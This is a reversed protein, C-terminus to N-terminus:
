SRWFRSTQDILQGESISYYRQNTSPSTLPGAEARWPGLKIYDFHHLPFGGPFLEEPLTERGSYWGVRLGPNARRLLAAFEVLAQPDNDGGQFGVCTIAGHYHAVLSILREQTLEEGVDQGLYSSHCGPCHHPCLSLNIALTVEDPYEQFVIDYNVYKIM